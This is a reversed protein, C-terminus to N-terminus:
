RKAGQPALVAGVPCHFSENCCMALLISCFDALMTRADSLPEVLTKRLESTSSPRQREGLDITLAFPGVFHPGYRRAGESAAAKGSPRKSCGSIKTATAGGTM